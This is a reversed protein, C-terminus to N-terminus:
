ALGKIDNLQYIFVHGAKDDQKLQSKNLGQKASTIFLLDMNPGGIAM